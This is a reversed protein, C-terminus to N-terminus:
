AEWSHGITAAWAALERHAAATDHGVKKGCDWGARYAESTYAIANTSVPQRGVAALYGDRFVVAIAGPLPKLKKTRKPRPTGDM